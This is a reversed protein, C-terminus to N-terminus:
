LLQYQLHCLGIRFFAELGCAADPFQKRRLNAMGNNKVVVCIALKIVM